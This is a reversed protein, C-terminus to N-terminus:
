FKNYENSIKKRNEKEKWKVWRAYKYVMYAVYGDM